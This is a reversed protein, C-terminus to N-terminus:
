HLGELSQAWSEHSLQQVWMGKQGRLGNSAKVNQLNKNPFLTQPYSQSMFFMRSFFSIKQPLLAGRSWSSQYLTLFHSLFSRQNFFRTNKEVWYFSSLLMNPKSESRAYNILFNRYSHLLLYNSGGKWPRVMIKHVLILEWKNDLCM